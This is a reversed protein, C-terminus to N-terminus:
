LQSSENWTKDHMCEMMIYNLRIQKNIYFLYNIAYFFQLKIREHLTQLPEVKQQFIHCNRDKWISWTTAAWLMAMTCCDRKSPGGLACFHNQQEQLLGNGVFKFGLWAAVMNWIRGFHNCRVLLHNKEEDLGCGEVCHCDDTSVIGRRVLNDKTPIRNLLLRWVFLNLKLPM